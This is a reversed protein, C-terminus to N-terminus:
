IKRHIKASLFLTLLLAIAFTERLHDNAYWGRFNQWIRYEITCNEYVYCTHQAPQCTGPNFTSSNSAMQFYKGSISYCLSLESTANDLTRKLVAQM